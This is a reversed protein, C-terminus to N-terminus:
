AAGQQKVIRYVRGRGEVAESTVILGLKKKLTGSIAGRVSHAQWGTAKVIQDITAGDKATLMDILLAQKTGSRVSPPAGTKPKAATPSRAAGRGTKKAAPKANAAENDPTIGIAQLGADTVGLTLRGGDGTERWTEADRAAPREAVLGKKLLSKLVAAIAGGKIKLTDPLPLVTGDDRAAAASLIVLQTDTLKPM